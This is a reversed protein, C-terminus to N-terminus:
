VSGAGSEQRCVHGPGCKEYHIRFRRCRQPLIHNRYQGFCAAENKLHFPESLMLLIQSAVREALLANPVGALIVAFEDGGLRSITDSARVCSGMRKSAEVLLLDGADHGMTDNVEKFHDLDIFMVALQGRDRDMKKMEHELRDRFLRRNPLGTLTDFNAQRVIVDQANKWDTIDAFMGVYRLPSGDAARIVSITLWEFYDEGNKRRNLVEGQWHNETELTRWMETYLTRHNRGSSLIKPDKGLVDQAEYGTIATFSPNVQIILNDPGTVMIGEKSVTYVSLALQLENDSRNRLIAVSALEAASEMARVDEPNPLSPITRFVTIAGMVIGGDGKIPESWCSRFGMKKCADKLPVTTQLASIDEIHVRDSKIGAREGGLRDCAEDYLARFQDPLKASMILRPHHIESDALLISAVLGDRSCEVYAILTSLIEDLRNRRVLLEFFQSRLVDQENQRIRDSIDRVSVVLEFPKGDKGQVSRMSTEVWRFSGDLQKRRYTRSSKGHEGLAEQFGTDFNAWDDPHVFEKVNHGLLDSPAHGGVAYAAPSVYTYRGAVDLVGLMEAVNAALLELREGTAQLAVEVNIRDSVDRVAGLVLNKGNCRVQSATIQVPVSEGTSRRHLTHFKVPVSSEVLRNRLDGFEKPTFQTDIDAVSMGLLQERSYGLHQCMADNVYVFYGPAAVDRAYVCDATQELLIRYFDLSPSFSGDESSSKSTKVLSGALGFWNFLRHVPM